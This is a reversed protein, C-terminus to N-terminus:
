WIRVRDEPALYMADGPQVDFARYFVDFNQLPGLIRYRDPVHPDTLIMSRIFEERWKGKGGQVFGLIFRQDGSLGDIVPAPKGGLSLQYADYAVILGALDGINEGLSLEGNLCADEFPCFSNFQAVLKKTREEFAERDAGTWWDRLQGDGDYKSGQDDFAHGIEHGITAGISGYNVADEADRQFHPPQLYGAPFIIQNRTPVFSANVTQPPYYWLERDVRNGLKGTEFHHEFRNSSWINALLQDPEVQLGSYDRWKNPYGILPEMKALKAHAERKTEASMWDLTDLRADMALLLYKVLEDMHAKAEPPFWTKIFVKGVVEGLRNNLQGIARQWRPRPSETGNLTRGNFDFYTAYITEDLYPAASMILRTTLYDRWMALETNALLDAFGTMYSPQYVIIEPSADFRAQKMFAPWAFGPAMNELEDISRKNYHKDPNRSDVKTWQHEALRTELAMIAAAREARNDQGLHGLMRELYVTYAARLERFRETDELYYDRDPMGLGSQVMYLINDGPNKSDGFIGFDLPIAVGIEYLHAFLGPLEGHSEIGRIRELEAALPGLGLRAIAAEDM